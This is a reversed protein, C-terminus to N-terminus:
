HGPFCVFHFVAWLLNGTNRHRVSYALTLDDFSGVGQVAKFGQQHAVFRFEVGPHGGVEYVKM